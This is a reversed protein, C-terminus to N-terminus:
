RWLPGRELYARAAGQSEITLLEGPEPNGRIQLLAAHEFQHCWKCLLAVNHFTWRGGLSRRQLHHMQTGVRGCARCRGEDRKKVHRRCAREQIGLERKREIRDVLRPTGKPLPLDSYDIPV